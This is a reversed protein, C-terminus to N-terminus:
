YVWGGKSLERVGSSLSDPSDDHDAYENYDLIENVYEPDTEPLFLVDKWNKKLYTSIKVFKNTSEHYGKTPRGTKRIEKKLYGKDANEEVHITGARYRDVYGLIEDLCEDVHKNWRKGFVVFKGDQTKKVISAATGDSGGYAADIQCIGNFIVRAPDGEDAPDYKVFQPNNFIADGSAIHLLEYNAAFLSSTMSDRLDDLQGRTILGTSYCDYKAVNPMKSTADEKHWPTCANIFRGGRNKVNQLEQYSIKTQERTARSVRDKINVIDDTVVVDAHKGTISTGIGLGLLQSAGKVSATLNTDIESSTDKSLKLEVGYIESVITAFVESRLSNSVQAIIEDVDTDTKRFFLTGLHPYAVVILSLAISLCTTKYSGRHAMLTQDGERFLFSRIWGNHLPTLDKFGLWHGIKYPEEYILRRYDTGTGPGTEM